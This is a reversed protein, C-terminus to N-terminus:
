KKGRVVPLIKKYKRQHNLKKKMQDPRNVQVSEPTATIPININHCNGLMENIIDYYPCDMGGHGSKNNNDKVRKYNDTLTQWRRCLARSNFECHFNVWMEEAVDDWM